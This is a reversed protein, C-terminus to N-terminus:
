TTIPAHHIRRNRNPYTMSVIRANQLFSPEKANKITVIFLRTIFRINSLAKRIKGISRAKPTKYLLRTRPGIRADKHGRPRIRGQQILLRGVKIIGISLKGSGKTL